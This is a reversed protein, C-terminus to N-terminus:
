RRAQRLESGFMLWPHRPEQSRPTLFSVASRANIPRRRQERLLRLARIGPSDRAESLDRLTRRGAGRTRIRDPPLHRVPGAVPSSGDSRTTGQDERHAQVLSLTPRSKAANVPFDVRESRAQAPAREVFRAQADRRPSPPGLCRLASPPVYGSGRHHPIARSLLMMSELAQGLAASKFVEYPCSDPFRLRISWTGEPEDITELVEASVWQAKDDGVLCIWVSGPSPDAEQVTVSAGGSSLNRLLGPITRFCGVQWWGLRVHRNSPYRLTARRDPTPM